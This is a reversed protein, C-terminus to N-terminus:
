HHGHGHDHGASAPPDLTIDAPAWGALIQIWGCLMAIGVLLGVEGLQYWFNPITIFGLCTCEGPAIQSWVMAGAIMALLLPVWAGLALVRWAKNWNVGWLFWAMWIILLLWGTVLNWLPKLLTGLDSFIRLLAEWQENM